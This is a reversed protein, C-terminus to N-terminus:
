EPLTGFQGVKEGVAKYGRPLASEDATGAPNVLILVIAIILIILFVVVVAYEVTTAGKQNHTLQNHIKSLRKNFM